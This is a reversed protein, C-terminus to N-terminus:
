KKNESHKEKKDKKVEEKLIRFGTHYAEIQEHDNPDIIRAGEAIELLIQLARYNKMKKKEKKLMFDAVSDLIEMTDIKAFWGPGAETSADWSSGNAILMTGNSVKWCEIYYLGPKEEKYLEGFFWYSGAETPCEKTWKYKV